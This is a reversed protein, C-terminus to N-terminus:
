SPPRGRPRPRGPARGGWGSRLPRRPRGRAPRCAAARACSVPSALDHRLGDLHRREALADGLAGDRAPQLGDALGDGDVLRQELDRGVLDVGLDGRGHGADHQLDKHGLVLRDGYTGHEGPDAAGVLCTGLRGCGGRRGRSGDDVLSGRGLGLGRCGGDRLGHHGLRHGLGCRSSGGSRDLAALLDGHRREALADGLAGDRAPQLVDALGHRDVLRQELDRGVLDVGLDGRREGAREGLDQHALVLGGGDSGHQGPDASLRSCRRGSGNRSGGCGARRLARVPVSVPESVPELVRRPARERAQVRLPVRRVPLPVRRLVLARAWM